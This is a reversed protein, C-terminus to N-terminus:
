SPIESRLQQILDTFRPSSAVLPEPLGRAVLAKATEPGLVGWRVPPAEPRGSARLADNFADLAAVSSVVVAAYLGEVYWDLAASNEIATRRKEYVLPALVQAGRRRLEHLPAGDADAGRPWLVSKGSLDMPLSELIGPAGPKTPVIVREEPAGAGVMMAATSEGAAILLEFGLTFLADEGVSRLLRVTSPSSIVLISDPTPEFSRVVDVGEFRAVIHHTRLVDTQDDAIAESDHDGGSRLVLIRAM